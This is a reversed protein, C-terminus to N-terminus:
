KGGGNGVTKELTTLLANKTIEFETEVRADVSGFQGDIFCGGRKIIESPVLEIKQGGFSTQMKSWHSSLAIADDPNVYIRLDGLTRAQALARSFAQGLAEPDLPLGDGFLTQAIQIVLRLMMTEGQDLLSNKWEQVEEIVARATELMSETETKSHALGEDYAQGQKEDAEAEARAVIEKAQAQAKSLIEKAEEEASSVIQSASQYAQRAKPTLGNGARLGSQMGGFVGVFHAIEQPIWESSISNLDQVPKSNSPRAPVDVDNELNVNPWDEGSLNMFQAQKERERFQDGKGGLAFDLSDEIKGPQWTLDEATYGISELSKNSSPM